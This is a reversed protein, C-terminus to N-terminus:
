VFPAWVMLLEGDDERDESDSSTTLFEVSTLCCGLIYYQCVITTILLFVPCPVMGSDQRLGRKAPPAGNSGNMRKLVRRVYLETQFTVLFLPNVAGHLVGHWVALSHRLAFQPLHCRWSHLLTHDVVKCICQCLLRARGLRLRCRGYHLRM